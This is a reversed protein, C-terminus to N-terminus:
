GSHGLVANECYKSKSSDFSSVMIPYPSLTQTSPDFRFLGDGDTGVLMENESNLFLSHIVLHKTNPISEFVSDNSNFKFLGQTYSAAYINGAEDEGIASLSARTNGEQFFPTIENKQNM